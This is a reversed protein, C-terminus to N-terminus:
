VTANPSLPKPKPHHMYGRNPQYPNPLTPPAFFSMMQTMFGMMMTQMREEHKLEDHRRKEEIDAELKMRKMEREEAREEM